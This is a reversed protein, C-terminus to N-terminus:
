ETKGGTMKDVPPKPPVTIDASEQPTNQEVAPPPSANDAVSSRNRAASEGFYYGMISGILGGLAAAVSQLGEKMLSVDQKIMGPWMAAFLALAFLVVMVLALLHRFDNIIKVFFDALVFRLKSDSAPRGRFRGWGFMWLAWNVVIGFVLLVLLSDFIVDRNAPLPNM